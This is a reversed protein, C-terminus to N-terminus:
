DKMWVVNNLNEERTQCKYYLEWQFWYAIALIIHYIGSWVKDKGLFARPGCMGFGNDVLHQKLFPYIKPLPCQIHGLPDQITFSPTSESTRNFVSVPSFKNEKSSSFSEFRPAYSYPTLDMSVSKIYDAYDRDIKCKKKLRYKIGLDDGFKDLKEITYDLQEKSLNASMCFRIRSKLLPVAPFFVPIIAIGSDLCLKSLTFPDSVLLPIVPSDEDGLVHFGLRCLENRLLLDM